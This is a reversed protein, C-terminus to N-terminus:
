FFVFFFLCGPVFISNLNMDKTRTVKTLKNWLFIHRRYEWSTVAKMFFSQSLTMYNSSKCSSKSKEQHPLGVIVLLLYLAGQSPEHDISLLQVLCGLVLLSTLVKWLCFRDQHYIPIQSVAPIHSTKNKHLDGTIHSKLSLYISRLCFPWPFNKPVTQPNFSM